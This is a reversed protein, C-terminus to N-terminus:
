PRTAEGEPTGAKIREIIARAIVQAIELAQASTPRKGVSAARGPEDEYYIYAVGIGAADSIEFSERLRRIRLPSTLGLDSM